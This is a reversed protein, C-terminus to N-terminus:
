DRDIGKILVILSEEPESEGSKTTAYGLRQDRYGWESTWQASFSWLENDPQIKEKFEQWATNLHGFPIEPAAGLPDSVVELIEVDEISVQEKLHEKEVKFVEPEKIERNEYARRELRDKIVWIIAAPWFILALTLAIVPIILDNFIKEKLNKSKPEIRKRIERLDKAEESNDLRNIAYIILLSVVGTVLYGIIYDIM